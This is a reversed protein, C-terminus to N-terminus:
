FSAVMIMRLVHKSIWRRRRQEEKKTLCVSGSSTLLCLMSSVRMTDLDILAIFNADDQVIALTRPGILLLSSGARGHAPRDMQENAGETYFLPLTRTIRASLSADRSCVHHLPGKM